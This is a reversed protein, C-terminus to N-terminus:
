ASASRATHIVGDRSVVFASRFKRMQVIGDAHRKAAHATDFTESYSRSENTYVTYGMKQGKTQQNQTTSSDMTHRPPM